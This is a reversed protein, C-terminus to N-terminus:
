KKILKSEGEVFDRLVMWSVEFDGDLTMNDYLDFEFYFKLGKYATIDFELSGRKFEAVTDYKLPDESFQMFIQAKYEDENKESLIISFPIGEEFQKKLDLNEELIEQIEAETYTKDVIDGWWALFRRIVPELVRRLYKKAREDNTIILKGEWQGTLDAEGNDIKIRNFDIFREQNKSNQVISQQLLVGINNTGAEIPVLVINEEGLVLSDSLIPQLESGRYIAYNCDDTGSYIEFMVYDKTEWDSPYSDVGGVSKIHEEIEKKMESKDSPDIEIDEGEDAHVLKQRKNLISVEVTTTPFYDQGITSDEPAKAVEKFLKEMKTFDMLASAAVFSYSNFNQPYANVSTSSNYEGLSTGDYPIYLGTDGIFNPDAVYIGEPGIKYAVIAHGSGLKVKNGSADRVFLVMIQPDKTVMMSYAFGNYIASDSISKDIHFDKVVKEYYDGDFDSEIQVVTALRIGLSDDQWFTPTSVDHNNDLYSKLAVEGAKKHVYYYYVSAASAGYCFGDPEPQSGDNPFSWDDVGPRYLTDIPKGEIQEKKITSIFFYSFHRTQVVIEDNTLSVTPMAELSGDDKYFFAMAFDDDSIQIPITVNMPIDSYEGGNEVEIVPTIPNVNEGYEHSKIEQTSIKFDTTELYADEPVDISLGNIPSASDRVVVSGGSPEIEEKVWQESKSLDMKKEKFIYGEATLYMGGLAVVIVLVFVLLSILCGRRKKKVKQPKTEGVALTSNDTQQVPAFGFTEITAAEVWEGSEESYVLTESIVRGEQIMTVMEEMTFPGYNEGNVNIYWNM